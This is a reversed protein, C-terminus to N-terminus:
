RIPSLFIFVFVRSIEIKNAKVSVVNIVGFNTNTIHHDINIAPPKPEPLLSYAQGMREIDGCDLAIVLDYDLSM